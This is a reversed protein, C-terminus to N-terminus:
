DEEVYLDELDNSDLDADDGNESVLPQTFTEVEDVFLGFFERVSDESKVTSHQKLISTIMSDFIEDEERLVEIGEALRNYALMKQFGRSNLVREIQEDTLDETRIRPSESM